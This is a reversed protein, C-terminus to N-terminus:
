MRTKDLVTGVDSDHISDRRLTPVICSKIIMKAAVVFINRNLTVEHVANYTFKDLFDWALWIDSLM